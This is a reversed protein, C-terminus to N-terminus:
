ASENESEKKEAEEKAKKAEYEEIVKAINLRNALWRLCEANMVIKEDSRDIEKVMIGIIARIMESEKM